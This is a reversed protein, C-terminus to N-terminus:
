VFVESNTKAFEGHLQRAMLDYANAADAECDFVGIWTDIGNSKISASWKATAAHWRVGKFRSSGRKNPLRNKANEAASCFRLNSKRCNLPNGDIHDVQQGDGARMILRHLYVKRGSVRARPRGKGAMCWYYQSVIPADELDIVAVAGGAITVYTENANSM